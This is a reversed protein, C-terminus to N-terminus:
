QLILISGQLTMGMRVRRKLVKDREKRRIMKEISREKKGGDVQEAMRTQDRKRREGYRFSGKRHM